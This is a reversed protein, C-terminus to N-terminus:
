RCNLAQLKLQFSKKKKKKKTILKNSVEFPTSHTYPKGKSVIQLPFNPHNVADPFGQAGLM